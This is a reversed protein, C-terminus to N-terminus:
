AIKTISGKPAKHTVIVLRDIGAVIQMFKEITGTVSNLFSKSQNTYGVILVLDSINKLGNFIDIAILTIVLFKFIVILTQLLTWETFRISQLLDMETVLKKGETEFKNSKTVKTFYTEKAADFNEYQKEYKKGILYTGTFYIIMLVIELIFIRRDIFILLVPVSIFSVLGTIGSNIFYTVFVNLADTLNRTAQITEGRFKDRAPVKTIFIHQIKIIIKEIFVHIRTKSGVRLLIELGQIFFYLLFILLAQQLSKTTEFAAIGRSFIYTGLLPGTSSITLVLIWGWLKKNRFENVITLVIQASKM